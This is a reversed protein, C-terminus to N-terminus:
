EAIGASIIIEGLRIRDASDSTRHARLQADYRGPTLTNLDTAINPSWAVDIFGLGGSIGSSKTFKATGGILGVAMVFTWGSSFDIAFGDGDAWPVRLAPLEAGQMYPYSFTSETM